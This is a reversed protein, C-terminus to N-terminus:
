SKVTLSMVVTTSGEANLATFALTYTGESGVAAKGVLEGGSSRLQYTIGPPLTGSETLTPAPDGATTLDVHLAHGIKATAATVARITPTSVVNVTLLQTSRGAPDTAVLSVSRKGPAVPTGSITGTGGPGATFSLGKPLAGKTSITPAPFGSAAVGITAVRGALVTVATPSTFLPPVTNVILTFAQTPAGVPNTATITIPFRGVQEPTGSLQGDSALTVGTPLPGSETFVPPPNGTAQVSFTSAVGGNFSTSAASTFVPPSEVTLTLTQQADTGVGNSAYLQITYSGPVTATGSLVGSPSFTVGGPLAGRETLVPVPYGSTTVDFTGASGEVFAAAPASTIAPAADVDLTYTQQANPAVGNSATLTLTYPGPAGTPTGSLTATGNGNDTFTVGTPLGGTEGLTAVPYGSTSVTLTGPSGAALTGSTPGAFSPPADVVLSFDQTGNSGVGNAATIVLPYVGPAGTPAGEITAQGNGDDTFTVGSPLPGSESLAPTPMGSTTVTVTQDVNETFTASAASTVTAPADVTLTFTETASGEPNTITVTFAFTGTVTPDGSLLGTASLTVGAPLGTGTSYTPAPSGNATLQLSGTTGEVFTAQPSGLFSPGNGVTLVFSQSANTGIGNSAVITIPYTGTGTPRGSLLGSSSLTVGAPLTSGTSFTPAPYGHAVLQFSNTYGASFTTSGASVITPASDVTLTVDQTVDTGVGNEATVALQYVGGTHTGPTGTLEATGASTDSFTVGTPLSGSESLTPTPEGTATFTATGDTGKTFTVQTPGSLAPAQDVVLTVPLSSTGGAGNDADVTLQYIGGTGAGPTGALTATGDGNDTFTVGNPLGGVVSLAPTPYSATTYTTTGPTAVSYTVTSPGTISPTQDVTLVFTQVADTGVGNEATITVPYTGGSGAAPTGALSGTGDGNDTFTVGAPLTGTETLNAAPTGSTTVEFSLHSGVAATASGGSTIAPAATTTQITLTAGAALSEWGSTTGGYQTGLARNDVSSGLPMSVPVEVSGTGNNTVTVTGGQESATVTGASVAAAWASKETEIAGIQGFTPQEYPASSTFESDYQALLPNLVSYLLGDGTTDPTGPVPATDGGAPPQGMLNTQHVYTPEPDNSLMNQFMGSVVSNVIDAFTAPSTLCTTVSTDVCTGGADTSLYLNNYEDVEQAETSANYFINIPHRPVAESTGDPFASGAPYEAGTYDAGIGFQDDPPDPYPKSADAGVTTIGVAELAPVFYPNQEWPSENANEATPPLWGTPEATGAIGNDTFTLELEGGNTVDSTSVPDGSSNDPLTASTPTALSGISSWNNSGAVERYVLYNAAHCIAQWVISVSGGTPVAIPGTVYAQSQDVGPSDAGDFQDTVAYQYTGAPLNGTTAVNEEDLDPPDVTAPTGPELDALGSHNGPVFVDPNEAGLADNVDDSETLGLGGTGPTAGPAAAAWDTNENLEAEIYNQTACGVDLYPTDYTHSIWGFDDAYPRGTTPDTAQFQALLPDPGGPAILDGDAQYGVSGGGNFLQDMRFDNSKSWQAAYVVDAAQMRLADADTYDNSHTAVSWADDPTFTDDIDMEVYNRVLGLHVGDTVWDILSPALELWSSYTSDYDFAISLESVDDQGTVSAPGHQDLAILADGGATQLLPTVTDGSPAAVTSPYGYTDADLPVPGALAPFDALGASTLTATTSGLAPSANNDPTIGQIAAVPYTYGDIQRVNFESEYNFVPYLTGWPFQYISPILVVGDYYGHDPDDPDVLDPLTLSASNSPDPLVLTYPVGESTLASEWAETVPDGSSSGILLVKLDLRPTGQAGSPASGIAETAVMTASLLCLVAAALTVTRRFRIPM